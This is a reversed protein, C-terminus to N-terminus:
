RARETQSPQKHARRSHDANGQRAGPARPFEASTICQVWSRMVDADTFTTEMRHVAYTAKKATQGIVQLEVSDVAPGTGDLENNATQLAAVTKPFLKRRGRQWDVFRLWDRIVSGGGRRGAVSRLSLSAIDRANVTDLGPNAKLRGNISYDCRVAPTQGKRALANYYDNVATQLLEQQLSIVATGSAVTTSGVM